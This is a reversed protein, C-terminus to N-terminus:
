TRDPRAFKVQFVNRPNFLKLKIFSEILRWDCSTPADPLCRIAPLRHKDGDKPLFTAGKRAFAIM